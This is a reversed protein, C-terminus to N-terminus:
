GAPQAPEYQIEEVTKANNQGEYMRCLELLQQAAEKISKIEDRLFEREASVNNFAIRLRTNATRLQQVEQELTM